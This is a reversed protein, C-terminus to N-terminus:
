GNPQAGQAPPLEQWRLLTGAWSYGVGFGVLALTHGDHLRGASHLQKIAIPITSSVTNACDAMSVIFKEPPLGLQERLHKLMYGNAQHFVWYDVSDVNRGAKALLQQVTLPVVRLTFEFIQAGNMFLNNVTRRNGSKDEAVEANAVAARRLGGTPVILNEAGSGDTGFVFPGLFDEDAEVGAVWTAAAADGFITRVSKDQPHIYKSYTEATVLLVNRAQGTEILGKALGLGYVFGSCGLNFDFAACSQPLGLRHQLLCATTPLFYDPSQTCLMLCDMESARCVGSSFLKGAAAVALDSACEGEAAIHRRRIGTKNEIKRADWGCFEAALTANDLVKEPLHYEIARIVAKMTEIL